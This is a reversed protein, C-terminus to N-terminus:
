RSVTREFQRLMDNGRSVASDLAEKASKKGTLAAEVEEAWVDRIQVLGGFRLGRSNDTPEKNNLQLLPTELHPNQKYFGSAKVKEYAAKTIPLYGSETHLKVQRDVNSLFTFFKAVGKYEDAKKGGMVWLSAGGIISNQPAGAVDPYYPLVSNGWEFKANARVNGFFASSTMFLPCEGSTFRGEGTNTRGSYDFTKDKQLDILNQLHRVFLPSNIQFQTDFGDMGNAKTGLPTNHWAGLQEINVWTIWATSFGCTPSVTKLKKAAEFVEPWTKPPQDPNLGAQRFKDKNIWMVASSSNFPFSLMEGKTTSYYGTIAPLYSKPDFSEGAEKMMDQVPKIAGRAGMMTATGVEFVQLIHPANGARFAAIGANLTDAYSGKYAPVVKFDKQSANFEEALKVIVDNNAGTMAHWWQIETQAQAPAAGLSAALVAAGLLSRRDFKM